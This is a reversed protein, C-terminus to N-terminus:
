KQKFMKDLLPEITPCQRCVIMGDKDLLVLTPVGQVGFSKAVDATEDLLVRYPLKHKEVFKAVKAQSEQIDVQLMLLGKTGYKAYIDKLRPIEEICYPCWTTSFVLLVPKGKNENLSFKRGQLDKLTFDPAKEVMGSGVNGSVPYTLLPKAAWATGALWLLCAAASIAWGITFCKRIM